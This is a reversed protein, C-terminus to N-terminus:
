CRELCFDSVKGYGNYFAMAQGFSELDQIIVNEIEIVKWYSELVRLSGTSIFGAKKMGHWIIRM